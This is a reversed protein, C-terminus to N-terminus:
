AKGELLNLIANGMHKKPVFIFEVGYKREMTFMIKELVEPRVKTIAQGGRKKPVIWTNVESVRRINEESILFIFRECGIECARTIEEKIRRHETVKCLNHALEVLSDKRDILVKASNVDQYDGTYMKSIIYKQGISDFYELIDKNGKERSDVQIVM